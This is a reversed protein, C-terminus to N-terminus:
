SLLGSLFRQGPAGDGADWAEQMLRQRIAGSYADPLMVWEIFPQYQNLSVGSPFCHM